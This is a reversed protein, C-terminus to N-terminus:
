HINMERLFDPIIILLDRHCFFRKNSMGLLRIKNILNNQMMGLKAM